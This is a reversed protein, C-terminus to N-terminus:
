AESRSACARANKLLLMETLAFILCKHELAAPDLLDEGNDFCLDYGWKPVVPRETSDDHSGTLGLDSGVRFLVVGLSDSRDCEEDDGEFVSACLAQLAYPSMGPFVHPSMGPFSHPRFDPSDKAPSVVCFAHCSSTEGRTPTSSTLDFPANPTRVAFPTDPTCSKEMSSNDVCTFIQGFQEIVKSVLIHEEAGSRNKVRELLTSLPCCVLVTVVKFGAGELGWIFGNFDDEDLFVTDCIIDKRQEQFREVIKGILLKNPDDEVDVDEFEEDNIDDDLSMFSFDLTEAWVRAVSTKGSGSTGNVVFVTGGDCRQLECPIEAVPPVVHGLPAPRGVRSALTRPQGDCDSESTEFITSKKPRCFGKRVRVRQRPIVLKRRGNRDKKWCGRSKKQAVGDLDDPQEWWEKGGDSGSVFGTGAVSFALALMLFYNLLFNRKEM